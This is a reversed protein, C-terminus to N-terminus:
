CFDVVQASDQTLHIWDVGKGGTEKIDTKINDKWIMGEPKEWM